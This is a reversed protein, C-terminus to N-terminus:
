AKPGAAKTEASATAFQEFNKVFLAALEKAKADYAAQDSWTSKANLLEAPVDPCSQPVDVGFIPHTEYKVDNLAGSLAATVMARTYPLKMRSGVGHPGGTWGTNVLWVKAGHEAIKKGLLDAYVTPNLIMFPAGFCTSFTAQPETVGAETGAVKATYGSLFHYMAQAPTLRSIPPLVGFADCTLFVINKPHGGISPEVSNDIHSLPYAGRTNETISGDEYRPARTAPDLVVNELVCGFKLANYIQPEYERSLNIV